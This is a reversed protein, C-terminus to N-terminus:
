CDSDMVNLNAAAQCPVWKMRHIGPPTGVTVLYFDYMDDPFFTQVVQSHALADVIESLTPEDPLSSM